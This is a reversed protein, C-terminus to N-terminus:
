KIAIQFPFTYWCLWYAGIIVPAFLVYPTVKNGMSSDWLLGAGTVITLWGTIIWLVFCGVIAM